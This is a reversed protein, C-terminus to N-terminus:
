KALHLVHSISPMVEEPHHTIYILSLESGAAQCLREVVGLVRQRRIWDLGQCPEDLVLLRPHSAIAAAILVMKQEGQSLQHFAGQLFGDSVPMELWGLVTKAREISVADHQSSHQTLVHHISLTSRALAM